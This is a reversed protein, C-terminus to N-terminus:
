KRTLWALAARSSHCYWNRKSARPFTWNMQDPEDRSDSGQGRWWGMEHPNREACAMHPVVAGCKLMFLHSLLQERTNSFVCCTISFNCCAASSNGQKPISYDGQSWNSFLIIYVLHTQLTQIRGQAQTQWQPSTPLMYLMSAMSRVPIKLGLIILRTISM